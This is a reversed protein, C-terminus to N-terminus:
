KEVEAKKERFECVISDASLGDILDSAEYRLIKSPAGDKKWNGHERCRNIIINKCFLRAMEAVARLDASHQVCLRCHAPYCGTDSEYCEHEADCVHQEGVWFFRPHGCEMLEKMAALTKDQGDLFRADYQPDAQYRMIQEHMAALEKKLQEIEEMLHQKSIDHM